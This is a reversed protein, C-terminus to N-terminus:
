QKKSDDVKLLTDMWIPIMRKREEIIIKFQEDTVSAIASLMPKALFPFALLAFLNIFFQSISDEKIENNEKKQQFQKILVSNSFLSKATSLYEFNSVDNRIESMVFLPIDPNQCVKDVYNDTFLLIKEEFTTHEDNVIAFMDQMVSKVTEYMIIKFLNEKSRYYYNLLALNIGAEEAIDRTRTAAYGKRQFVARAANKIKEETSINSVNLSNNDEM